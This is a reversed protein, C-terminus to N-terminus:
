YFRNVVDLIFYILAFSFEHLKSSRFNMWICDMKVRQLLHGGRVKSM